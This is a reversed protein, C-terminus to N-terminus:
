MNPGETLLLTAKLGHKDLTADLDLAPVMRPTPALNTMVRAMKNVQMRSTVANDV